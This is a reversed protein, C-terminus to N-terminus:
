RIERQSRKEERMNLEKRVRICLAGLCSLLLIFYFFINVAVFGKNNLLIKSSFFGFEECIESPTSINTLWFWLQFGCVTALLIFNLVSFVLSNSV